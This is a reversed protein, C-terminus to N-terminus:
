TVVSGSPSQPTNVSCRERRQLSVGGTENAEFRRACRACLGHSVPLNGQQMVLSCWGCVVKLIAASM